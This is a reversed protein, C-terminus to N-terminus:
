QIRGSGNINPIIGMEKLKPIGLGTHRSLAAWSEFVIGDHEIKNGNKSVMSGQTPMAKNLRCHGRRKLASIIQAEIKSADANKCKRLIRFRVAKLRRTSFHTRKRNDPEVTQGVYLTRKGRVIAYIYVEHENM